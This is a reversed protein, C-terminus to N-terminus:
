EPWFEPSLIEELSYPCTAPFADEELGTEKAALLLSDAYAERFRAHLEHRLSPSDELLACVKRRQEKITYKWSNCRLGPQCRWKLLHALLVALRNVLARRESRGMSELEEAINAADIESLKGQRLLDANRLAWAYFDQDYLEIMGAGTLLELIKGFEPKKDRVASALFEECDPFFVDVSDWDAGM